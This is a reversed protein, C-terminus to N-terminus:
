RAKRALRNLFAATRTAQRETTNQMAVNGNADIVCWQGDAQQQATATNM